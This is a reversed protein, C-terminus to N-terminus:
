HAEMVLKEKIIANVVREMKMFRSGKVLVTVGSKMHSRLAELLSELTDFHQANQGFAESALRSKEGFSFLQNIGKEKAYAGIEKHMQQSDKGLEGMDGMVFLCRTNQSSVVDIAAKMSDPNANYTDDIVAAGNIGEFWNLRGKVSSFHALGKAIEAVSIGLAVAIASAALANRVNHLGLVHLSFEAGGRPTKLHVQSFNAQLQYSASIDAHAAFGFTIVKRSTNLSQWYSAFEDDANIVAIGDDALGEFIEGKARAIAERSGLEGIHATGANNVVAISPMALKTLYRIEGEHNMGMEIVAHTHNKNMNLLTLPMGIDNNLNGRTALVKGNASNIIATVMEKVTTKGNSGTVAILPLDFKKRWYHALNGLALRTDEVLVAPVAQANTKSVIAAAAGLKIAEQAFANGDFNEGKIAVFLQDKVISRSDTGVSRILVDNGRMSANLAGAVESLLMM